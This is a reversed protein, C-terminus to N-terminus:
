QVHIKTLLPWRWASLRLRWRESDRKCPTVCTAGDTRGPGGTEPCSVCQADFFWRRFRRPRTLATVLTVWVALRTMPLRPPPTRPTRGDIHNMSPPKTATAM